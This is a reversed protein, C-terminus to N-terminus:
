AQLLDVVEHHKLYTRPVNEYFVGASAGLIDLESIYAALRDVSAGHCLDLRIMCWLFRAIEFRVGQFKFQRDRAELSDLSFNGLVDNTDTFHLLFRKLSERLHGAWETSAGGAVCLYALNAFTGMVRQHMNKAGARALLGFLTGLFNSMSSDNAIYDTLDSACRRMSALNQICSVIRRLVDGEEENRCLLYLLKDFTEPQVLGAANDARKSLNWIVTAMDLRSSAVHKDGKALSRMDDDCLWILLVRPITEEAAQYMHIKNDDHWSLLSLFSAIMCRTHMQRIKGLVPCLVPLAVVCVDGLRKGAESTSSTDRSDGAPCPCLACLVGVFSQLCREISEDRPISAARKNKNKLILELSGSLAKAVATGIVEYVQSPVLLFRVYDAFISQDDMSVRPGNVRLRYLLTRVLCRLELVSQRCGGAVLKWTSSWVQKHHNIKRALKLAEIEALKGSREALTKVLGERLSKFRDDKMADQVRGEECAPDLWTAMDTPAEHLARLLDKGTVGTVQHQMRKGTTDERAFWKTIQDCSMRTVDLAAVQRMLEGTMGKPLPVPSGQRVKNERDREFEGRGQLSVSITTELSAVTTAARNEGSRGESTIGENNAAASLHVAHTSGATASARPPSASQGVWRRGDLSPRQNHLPRPSVAKLGEAPINAPRDLGDSSSCGRVTELSCSDRPPP